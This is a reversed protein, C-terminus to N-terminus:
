ILHFHQKIVLHVAVFVGGNLNVDTLQYNTLCIVCVIKSEPM